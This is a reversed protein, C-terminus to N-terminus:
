KSWKSTDVGASKARKKINYAEQIQGKKHAEDYKRKLVSVKTSVGDGSPLKTAPKPARSSQSKLGSIRETISGLYYAAKLGTRDNELLQKFEVQAVKNRGLYFMAKESGPGVLNVFENFVQEGANPMVSDIIQKVNEDAQKYVDPDLKQQSVLEAARSYHADVAQDVQQKRRQFHQQQQTQNVLLSAQYQLKETEYSDMAKEYAEDTDFDVYKPRKPVKVQAPSHVKLAENERKLREIESDREQIKGKLKAKVKMIASVPVQEVSEEPEESDDESMWFPTKAGTEPEESDDESEEDFGDEPVALEEQEEFESVEQVEGNEVVQKKM